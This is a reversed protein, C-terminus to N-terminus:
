EGSFLWTALTGLWEFVRGVWGFAASRDRWQRVGRWVLPRVDHVRRRAHPRIAGRVRRRRWLAAALGPMLAWVARKGPAASNPDAHANRDAGAITRVGERRGRVVRNGHLGRRREVRHFDRLRRGRAFRIPWASTVAKGPERM